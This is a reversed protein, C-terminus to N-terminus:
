HSGATEKKEEGAGGGGEEVDAKKALKNLTKILEGEEKEKKTKGINKRVTGAADRLAGGGVWFRTRSWAQLRNAYAEQRNRFDRKIPTEIESRTTTLEKKAQAEAKEADALRTTASALDTASKREAEQADQLQKYNKLNAMWQPDTDRLTELRKLEEASSAHNLEARSKATVADSKEETASRHKEEAERIAEREEKTKPRERISEEAAKEYAKKQDEYEKKAGGKQGKGFQIGAQGVSKALSTNRFDFSNKALKNELGSAVSMGLATRGFGTRRIGAAGSHGIAGLTRRGTWGVAAATLGMGSLRTGWKMAADAGFASMKKAAITVALLLGMAVLFSLVLSAFGSFHGTLFGDWLDAASQGGHNVGFGSLFNADTIVALAVYLLLMLIPATITQQFLYSWWSSATKSLKPVALGAFGIPAVVILLILIVFRAILIFALSFMVFAAILFLMIGLFGIYWASNSNLIANAKGSGTSGTQQDLAGGYIAALGLQQMIRNSIGEDHIAATVSNGSMTDIQQPTLVQGGNIQAYFETAFLNGVDIIAESIFLSFNLFVAAILLIPIMKKAGYSQTGLMIEIGVALFGFILVINGINRFIQWVVGIASLGNATNSGLFAGAHVVTYYAAYDLTLAATGLLWAFLGMIESMIYGYTSTNDTYTKPLTPNDVGAPNTTCNSNTCTINPNTVTPETPQLFTPDLSPATTGNGAPANAYPSPQAHAIPAYASLGFTCLATLILAFRKM